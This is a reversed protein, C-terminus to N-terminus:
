RRLPETITNKTKITESSKVTYRVRDYRRRLRNEADRSLAVPSLNSESRPNEQMLSAYRAKCKRKKKQM